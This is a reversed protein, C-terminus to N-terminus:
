RPWSASGSACGHCQCPRRLRMTSRRDADRGQELGTWGPNGGGSRRCDRSMPTPYIGRPASWESRGVIGRSQFAHYDVVFQANGIAERRRAFVVLRRPFVFLQQLRMKPNVRGRPFLLLPLPLPVRQLDSRFVVIALSSVDTPVGISPAMRRLRPLTRASCRGLNFLICRWDPTSKIERQVLVSEGM